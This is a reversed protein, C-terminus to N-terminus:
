CDGGRRVLPRLAGRCFPLISARTVCVGGLLAGDRGRADACDLWGGEEGRAGGRSQTREMPLSTSLIRGMGVALWGSRLGLCSQIERLAPGIFSCSLWIRPYAAPSAPLLRAKEMV